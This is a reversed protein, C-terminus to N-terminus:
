KRPLRLSQPAPKRGLRRITWTLCILAISEPSDISGLGGLLQRKDEPSKVLSSAERCMSLRQAAPVDTNAALGMYSRLCLTQDTLHSANRALSLLDPAADATKWAGLARIAADHVEPNSDSVAARVAQLADPGGVSSLVHLLV